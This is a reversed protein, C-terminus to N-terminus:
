LEGKCFITSEPYKKKEQKKREKELNRSAPSGKLKRARMKRSRQRESEIQEIERRPLKQKEVSEREKQVKGGDKEGWKMGFGHSRKEHSEQKEQRKGYDTRFLHTESYNKPGRISAKALYKEPTM